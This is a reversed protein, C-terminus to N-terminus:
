DGRHKDCRVGAVNMWTAKKGCVAELPGVHEHHTHYGYGSRGCGSCKGAWEVHHLADDPPAGCDRPPRSPFLDKVRLQCLGAIVLTCVREKVRM